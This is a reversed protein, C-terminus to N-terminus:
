PFLDFFGLDSTVESAGMSDRPEEGVNPVGGYITALHWQYIQSPCFRFKVKKKEQIDLIQVETGLM